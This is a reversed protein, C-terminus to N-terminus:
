SDLIQQILELVTGYSVDDAEQYDATPAAVCKKLFGFSGDDNVQVDIRCNSGQWEVQLGGDPLPSSTAPIGDLRGRGLRESRVASILHCAAAVARGTPPDADERDWNPPLKSMEVIRDFVSVLSSDRSGLLYGGVDAAVDLGTARPPWGFQHTAPTLAPKLGAILLPREPEDDTASRKSFDGFGPMGYGTLRPNILSDDIERLEFGDCLSRDITAIM